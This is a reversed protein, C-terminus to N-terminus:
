KIIVDSSSTENQESVSSLRSANSKEVSRQIDHEVKRFETCQTVPSTTNKQHRTRQTSSGDDYPFPRPMVLASTSAIFKDLNAQLHEINFNGQGGIVNVVDKDGNRKKKADGHERRDRRQKDFLAHVIQVVNNNPSASHNKVCVTVFSTCFEIDHQRTVDTTTTSKPSVAATAIAMCELLLRFCIHYGDTPHDFCLRMQQHDSDRPSDTTITLTANFNDKLSKTETDWLWIDLGTSVM